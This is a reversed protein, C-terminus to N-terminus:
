GGFGVWTPLSVHPDDHLLAFNLAAYFVQCCFFNIIVTRRWYTPATSLLPNLRDGFAQPIQTRVEPNLQLLVAELGPRFLDVLFAKTDLLTAVLWLMTVVVSFAGLPVFVIHRWRAIAATDDPLGLVVGLVFGVTLAKVCHRRRWNQLSWYQYMRQPCSASLVIALAISCGIGVNMWKGDDVAFRPLSAFGEFVQVWLSFQLLYASCWVLDSINLLSRGAESEQFQKIERRTRADSAAVRVVAYLVLTSAYMAAYVTIRVDLGKAFILRLSGFIAFLLGVTDLRVRNRSLQNPSPPSEALYIRTNHVYLACVKRPSMRNKLGYLLTILAVAIDAACIFPSIRAPSFSQEHPFEDAGSRQLAANFALGALSFFISMGSLTTNTHSNESTTTTNSPQHDPPSLEHDVMPVAMALVPSMGLTLFFTIPTM